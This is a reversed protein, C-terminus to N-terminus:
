SAHVQSIGLDPIEARTDEKLGSFSALDLCDWTQTHAPDAECQHQRCPHFAANPKPLAEACGETHGEACRETYEEACGQALGAAHGPACGKAYGESYGEACGEACGEAQGLWSKM